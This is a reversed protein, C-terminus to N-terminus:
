VHSSVSRRCLVQFMAMWNKTDQFIYLSSPIPFTPCALKSEWAKPINRRGIKANESNKMEFADETELDKFESM